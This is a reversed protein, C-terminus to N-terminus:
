SSQGGIIAKWRDLRAQKLVAPLRERLEDLGKLLHREYTQVQEDELTERLTKAVVAGSYIMRGTSFVRAGRESLLLKTLEDAEKGGWPASVPLVAVEVVADQEAYAEVIWKRWDHSSPWVRLVVRQARVREDDLYYRGEQSM